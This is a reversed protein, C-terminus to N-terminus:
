VFRSFFLPTSLPFLRQTFPFSVNVLYALPEQSLECAFPSFPFYECYMNEEKREKEGILFFFFLNVAGM